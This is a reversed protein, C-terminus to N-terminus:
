KTKFCFYHLTKGTRHRQVAYAVLKYLEGAAPIDSQPNGGDTPKPEIHPRRHTTNKYKELLKNHLSFQTYSVYVGRIEMQLNSFNSQLVGDPATSYDAPKNGDPTAIRLWESFMGFDLTFTIRSCPRSYIVASNFLPTQTLDLPCMFPSKLTHALIVNQKSAAAPTNDLSYIKIKGVASPDWKHSRTRGQKNNAVTEGEFYLRQKKRRNVSQADVTQSLTTIIRSFARQDITKNQMVTCQDDLCPYINKVPM